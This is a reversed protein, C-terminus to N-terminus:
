LIWQEGPLSSNQKFSAPRKPALCFFMKEADFNKKHKNVYIHHTYRLRKLIRWIGQSYQVPQHNWGRQFINTLNFMKGLYFVYYFMNSVVVEHLYNSGRRFASGWCTNPCARFCLDEDPIEVVLSINLQGGGWGITCIFTITTVRSEYEITTEPEWLRHYTAYLM